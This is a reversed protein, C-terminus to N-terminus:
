RERRWLYRRLRGSTRVRMGTWWVPLEGQFQVSAMGVLGVTASGRSCLPRDSSSGQGHWSEEPERPRRCSVNDAHHGQALQGCARRPVDHATAAFAGSSAGSPLSSRDGPAGLRGAEGRTFRRGPGACPLALSWWEWWRCRLLWRNRRSHRCRGGGEPRPPWSPAARPEVQSPQLGEDALAFGSGDSDVDLHAPQTSEPDAPGLDGDREADAALGGALAVGTVAM